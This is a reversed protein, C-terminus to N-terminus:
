LKVTIRKSFDLVPVIEDGFEVDGRGLPHKAIPLVPKPLRGPSEEDAFTKRPGERQNAKEQDESYCPCGVRVFESLQGNDSNRVNGTSLTRTPQGHLEPASM